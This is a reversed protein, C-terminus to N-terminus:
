DLADVPVVHQHHARENDPQVRVLGTDAPADGRRCGFVADVVEIGQEERRQGPRLEPAIHNGLLAQRDVIEGQVPLVVGQGKRHRV